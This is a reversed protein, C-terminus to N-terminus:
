RAADALPVGYLKVLQRAATSRLASVPSRRSGSQLEELNIREKACLRCILERVKGGREEVSFQAKARADAEGLMQEMFDGSGVEFCFIPTGLFSIPVNESRSRIIAQGYVEGPM